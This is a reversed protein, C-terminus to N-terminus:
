IYKENATKDSMEQFYIETEYSRRLIYMIKSHWLVLQPLRDLM